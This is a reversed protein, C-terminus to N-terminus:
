STIISRMVKSLELPDIQDSAVEIRLNGFMIKAMNPYNIEPNKKILLVQHNNITTSSRISPNEKVAQTVYENWSFNDDNQERVIEIAMGNDIVEGIFTEESTTTGDPLYLILMRNGNPDLIHRTSDLILGNPVYSPSFAQSLGTQSKADDFSLSKTGIDKLLIPPPLPLTQVYKDNVVSVEQNTSADGLHHQAFVGIVAIALISLALKTKKTEIKKM